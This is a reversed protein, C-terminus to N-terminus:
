LILNQIPKIHIGQYTMFNPLFSILTAKKPRKPKVDQIVNALRKVLGTMEFTYLNENEVFIEMVLEIAHVGKKFDDYFDEIYDLIVNSNEKNGRVFRILFIYAKELM